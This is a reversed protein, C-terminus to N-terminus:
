LDGLQPRLLIDEVTAQPSLQAAAYVMGAVDGAEMIRRPDVGSGAWSDTYVAGPYVATVKIGYPKMEERLNRSFGALAFKSISYAGGDPYAQLSAISCINFIHGKQREMMRPLLTRTLHYASYLNVGIMKELVGEAEGHVSGPIFQGANNVLTDIPVGLGLVWQGFERAQEGKGLDFARGRISVAPYSRKLEEMTRSLGEENRSCLVLGNGGAAFKEAIGKGLGRSAGTIIVEGSGPVIASNNM